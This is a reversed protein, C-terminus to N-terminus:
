LNAHFQHVKDRDCTELAWYLLYEYAKSMGHRGCFRVALNYHNHGKWHPLALEISEHLQLNVQERCLLIKTM